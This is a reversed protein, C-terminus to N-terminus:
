SDEGNGKPEWRMEAYKNTFGLREYLRRAPNAHEVHLKVAGDCRRLAEEILVSGVGRGRLAGDVAVFLLLFPPVYGRMGTRLIVVAGLLREEEEAVLVFGANAGHPTLADGVGRRIDSLSDEYPRLHVHLFEALENSSCWSPFPQGPLVEHIRVPVIM